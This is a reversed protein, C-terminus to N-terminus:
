FLFDHEETLPLRELLTAVHDIEDPDLRETLLHQAYEQVPNLRREHKRM